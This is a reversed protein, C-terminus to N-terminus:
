EDAADSTYLLCLNNPAMELKPNKTQEYSKADAFNHEYTNVVENWDILSYFHEKLDENTSFYNSQIM